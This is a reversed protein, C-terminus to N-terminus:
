CELLEVGYGKVVFFDRKGGFGDGAHVGGAGDDILENGGAFGGVADVGAEALEGGDADGGLM